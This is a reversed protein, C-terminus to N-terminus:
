DLESIFNRIYSHLEPFFNDYCDQLKDKNKLFIEFVPTTSDLYKARRAIHSLSLEMAWEYRYNFLWDEAKMRPLAMKLSEPLWIQHEDLVRYVNKTHSKWEQESMLNHDNALFYDMTVDIFAGSYLRTAPRFIQKAENIVPHLDTFSDIARHLVIGKRIEIPYDLRESNRVFDEILNGAIQGESFSLFTHALYNM